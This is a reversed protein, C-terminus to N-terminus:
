LKVKEIEHEVASKYKDKLKWFICKDTSVSLEGTKREERCGGARLSRHWFEDCSGCCDTSLIVSSSDGIVEFTVPM